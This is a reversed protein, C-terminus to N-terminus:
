RGYLICEGRKFTSYNGGGSKGGLVMTNEEVTQALPFRALWESTPKPRSCHGYRGAMSDHVCGQYNGSATFIYQSQEQEVIACWTGALYENTIKAKSAADFKEEAALESRTKPLSMAVMDLMQTATAENGQACMAAGQDRFMQLGGLVSPDLETEALAADIQVLQQRCDGLAAQPIFIVTTIAAVLSPVSKVPM